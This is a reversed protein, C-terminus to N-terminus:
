IISPIDSKDFSCKWQFGSAQKAKGKICARIGSPSKINESRAAEASSYYTDLYKGSLTYKNLPADLHGKNRSLLYKSLREEFEDISFCVINNLCSTLKGSLAQSLGSRNGFGQKVAEEISNFEGLVNKNVDIIYFHKPDRYDFHDRLRKLDSETICDDHFRFIRNYCYNRKRLCTSSIASIRNLSWSHLECYETISSYSDIFNGDLDYENIKKGIGNYEGGKTSNVLDYVDKYKAIYEIELNIITYVDDSEELINMIPQLNIKKLSAIWKTKRTISKDNLHDNFRVTPNNTIGIYKPIQLTPDVLAYLYYKRIQQM